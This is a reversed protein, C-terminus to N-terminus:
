GGPLPIKRWPQPHRGPVTPVSGRAKPRGASVPLMLLVKAGSEHFRLILYELDRAYDAVPRVPCDNTGICLSVLDPRLALMDRM